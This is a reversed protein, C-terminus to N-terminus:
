HLQESESRTGRGAKQQIKVMGSTTQLEGGDVTPGGPGLGGSHSRSVRLTSERYGRQLESDSKGAEARAYKCKGRCNRRGESNSTAVRWGEADRPNLRPRGSLSQVCMWLHVTNYMLSLCVRSQNVKGQLRPTEVRTGVTSSAGPEGNNSLLEHVILFYLSYVGAKLFFGFFVYNENHSRPATRGINEM